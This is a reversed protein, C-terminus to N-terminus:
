RRSPSRTQAETADGAQQQPVLEDPSTLLAVLEEANQFSHASGDTVQEVRGVLEGTDLRDRKLRLVFTALGSV